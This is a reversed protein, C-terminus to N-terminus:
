AYSKSQEAPYPERAIFLRIGILWRGGISLFKPNTDHAEASLGRGTKYVVWEDALCKQWRDVWATM